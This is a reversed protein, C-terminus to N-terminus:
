APIVFGGNVSRNRSLEKKVKKGIPIFDNYLKRLRPEWPLVGFVKDGSLTKVIAPNDKLILRPTNKTNNFIIGLIKLGRYKLAELTLLTHNIAGLKNQAVVLVALDLKKAIDIVLNEQDFPVLAGGIGEVIVFDFEQKLFNFSKIIKAPNIKRKEIRAALHPSSPTKFVYPLSYPLYTKIEKEDFGMIKCHLGIDSFGFNIYGTQIWKQTVVKFGSERLFKALFGTIVTKGAGTDTATVFIGQM